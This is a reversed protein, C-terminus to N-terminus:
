EGVSYHLLNKRAFDKETIYNQNFFNKVCICEDNNKCTSLIKSKSLGEVGYKDTLRHKKTIKHKIEKPICEISCYVKSDYMVGNPYYECYYTTVPTIDCRQTEVCVSRNCVVCDYHSYEFIVYEQTMDVM